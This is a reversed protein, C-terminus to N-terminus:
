LTMHRIMSAENSPNNAVAKATLTKSTGIDYAMNVLSAPQRGAQRGMRAYAFFYTINPTVPLPFPLMPLNLSGM